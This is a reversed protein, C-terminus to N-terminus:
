HRWKKKRIDNEVTRRPAQLPHLTANKGKGTAEQLKQFNSSSNNTQNQCPTNKSTLAKTWPTWNKWHKKRKDNADALEDKFTETSFLDILIDDIDNLIDKMVSKRNLCSPNQNKQACKELEHKWHIRRYFATM